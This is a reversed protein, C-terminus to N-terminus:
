QISAHMTTRTTLVSLSSKIVEVTMPEAVQRL